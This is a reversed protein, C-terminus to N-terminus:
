GLGYLGQITLLWSIFLENAIQSVDFHHWIFGHSEGYWMECMKSMDIFMLHNNSNEFFPSFQFSFAFFLQHHKNMWGRSQRWCIWQGMPVLAFPPWSWLTSPRKATRELPVFNPVSRNMWFVLRRGLSKKWSRRLELNPHPRIQKVLNPLPRVWVSPKASSPFPMMLLLTRSPCIMPARGGCCLRRLQFNSCTSICAPKWSMAVIHVQFSRVFVNLLNGDFVLCMDFWIM